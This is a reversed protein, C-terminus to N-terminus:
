KGASIKARAVERPTGNREYYNALIAHARQHRSDQRLVGNLWGIAQRHQGNRLLIEAIECPVSLDKPRKEMEAILEQYRDADAEIRRLKVLCQDAEEKKGRQRLCIVFDYNTQRDNPDVTLSQRLAAEAEEQQGQSMAVRAREALARADNPKSRLFEDLLRRAEDLQGLDRRCRVLGIIIDARDPPQRQRLIEFHDAAEQPLASQQLLEALSLRAEDHESDLEVARRFDEIASPLQSLNQRVWGRWVHAEVNGPERALLQKLCNNAQSWRFTEMYGQALAEWILASEPVEQKASAWLGVELDAMEGRQAKMLAREIEIAEPVGGIKHYTTLLREAEDYARGRRATRAALLCTEMNTPWARLCVALHQRARDFDRRELAREAARFNYGAWLQWGSAYLGYGVSGLLILALLSRKSCWRRTQLQKSAQQGVPQDRRGGSLFLFDLGSVTM